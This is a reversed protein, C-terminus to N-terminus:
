SPRKEILLNSEEKKGAKLTLIIKVILFITLIIISIQLLIM